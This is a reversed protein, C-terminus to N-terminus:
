GEGALPDPASFRLRVRLGPRNDALKLAAGHARAIAAVLALGLGIGDRAESGPVRYFRETARGRHEEDIGAGDDAIDLVVAGANRHGSVTIRRGDRAHKLANDLLNAVAQFLLNADGEVILDDEIDVRMQLERREFEPEYFEVADRLLPALDVRHCAISHRGTELRAIRLLSDFTAQLRAAEAIAADVLQRRESPDADAALDILDAQLRTLPTRLEHAISDSVRSVSEVLAEIRALMDNLTDGLRDFDDGSGRTPVRGSLDGAIVRRATQTVADLRRGVALSMLLGGALGLVLVGLSGSVVLQEILEERDDIEEIDRGVFLRAGDRFAREYVLAEHDEEDGDVYLDAEIRRWGDSARAPWSPLNAVVRGQPDIFAHFALRDAPTTARRRLEEILADRGELMYTDALTDTERLVAREVNGLPRVVSGWWTATLLAAVSLSFLALYVLALRFTLSRLLRRPTM